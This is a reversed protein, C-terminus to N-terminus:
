ASTVTEWATGNSFVLKNNTTDYVIMGEVASAAPLSGNAMQPVYFGGVAAAHNVCAGMESSLEGSAEIVIKESSVEM